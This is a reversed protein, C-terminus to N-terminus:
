QANAAGKTLDKECRDALERLRAIETASFRGDAFCKEALERKSKLEAPTDASTIAARAKAYLSSEGDPASGAAALAASEGDDQEDTALNLIAALSMRRVYTVFAATQQPNSAQRIPVVSSLWQGSKHGLTTVLVLETGALQMTQTVSLGYKALQRHTSERIDSLDAYMGYHSKHRKPISGIEGQALALDRYLEHTGDSSERYVYARRRIPEVFGGISADDM